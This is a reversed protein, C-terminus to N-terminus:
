KEMKKFIDVKAEPDTIAIIVQELFDLDEEHYGILAKKEVILTDVQSDDGLYEKISDLITKAFNDVDNGKDCRSKRLYVCIYILVRKDYFKAITKDWKKKKVIERVFSSYEQKSQKSSKPNAPLNVLFLNSYKGIYQGKENVKCLNKGIIQMDAIIDPPLIADKKRDFRERHWNDSYKESTVLIKNTKGTKKDIGLEIRYSPIKKKEEEMNKSFYPTILLNSSIEYLM